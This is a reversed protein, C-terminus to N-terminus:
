APALLAWSAGLPGLITRGLPGFIAGLPGWFPGLPGLLGWSPGLHGGLPGWTLTPDQLRSTKSDQLEQTRPNKPELTRLIQPNPPSRTELDQPRPPDAASASPRQIKTKTKKICLIKERGICCVSRASCIPWFALLFREFSTFRTGRMPWFDKSEQECAADKLQLSQAKPHLDKCIQM